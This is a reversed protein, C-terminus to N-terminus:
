VQTHRTDWRSKIMDDFPPRVSLADATALKERGHTFIQMGESRFPKKPVIAAPWGAESRHCSPGYIGAEM